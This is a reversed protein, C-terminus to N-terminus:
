PRKGLTAAIVDRVEIWVDADADVKIQEESAYQLVASGGTAEAAAADRRRIAAIKEQVLVLVEEATVDFKERDKVVDDWSEMAIGFGFREELRLNMDLFDAGM